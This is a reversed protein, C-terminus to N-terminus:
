GDVSIGASEIHKRIAAFTTLEPIQLPAVEAGKQGLELMLSIHSLSDWGVTENIRADEDIDDVGCEFVDAMLQRLSITTM